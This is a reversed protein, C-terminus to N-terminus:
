VQPFVHLHEMLANLARTASRPARADCNVVQVKPMLDLAARVHSLPYDPTDPFQNVVVVFPIGVRLEMQDLLEFSEELRRTDVMILAGDAGQALGTWLGWFRRQGPTSVLYLDLDDSLAVRGFDQTASPLAETPTELDVDDSETIDQEDSRPREFEMLSEILTSKGVGSAGVILVTMSRADSPTLRSDTAASDSGQTDDGTLHGTLSAIARAMLNDYDEATEDLPILVEFGNEPDRWISFHGPRGAIREWSERELSRVLDDSHVRRRM